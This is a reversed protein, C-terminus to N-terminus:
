KPCEDCEQKETTAVYWGKPCATCNEWGTSEAFRGAACKICVAMEPANGTSWGAPCEVCAVDGLRKQYLGAHCHKCVSQKGAKRKRVKCLFQLYM